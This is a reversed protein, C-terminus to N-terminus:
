RQSKTLILSGGVSLQEHQLYYYCFIGNTHGFILQIKASPEHDDQGFAAVSDNSFLHSLKPLLQVRNGSFKKGFWHKQTSQHELM